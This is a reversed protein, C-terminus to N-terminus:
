DNFTAEKQTMERLSTNHIKAFAHGGRQHHFQAIKACALFNM